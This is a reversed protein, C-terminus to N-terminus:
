AAQGPSNSKISLVDDDVDAARHLDAWDQNTRKLRWPTMRPLIKRAQGKYLVMMVPDFVTRHFTQGEPLPDNWLVERVANALSRHSEELGTYEAGHNCLLKAAEEETAVRVAERNGLWV